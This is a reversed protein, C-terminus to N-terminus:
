AHAAEFKVTLIIETGQGPASNLKLDAGIQTARAKINKLGNRNTIVNPDFGKGNDKVVFTVDPGNNTATLSAETCDSYKVLNNVSEKIILFINRRTEMPLPVDSIAEPFDIQFKIDKSEFLPIAFESIRVELNSFKDNSPKVLWIIDDLAELTDKANAEIKNLLETSHGGQRRLLDSFIYISSLSSGMDDHLDTAIQSRIELERQLGLNREILRHRLYYLLGSILLLTFLIISGFLFIRDNKRTAELFKLRAQEKENKYLAEMQMVHRNSNEARISDAYLRFLESFALANKYDGMDTKVKMLGEYANKAESKSRIEKSINLATLFMHEAEDYLKIEFYVNGLNNYTSATYIKDGMKENIVLAKEFLEIAKKYQGTKELVSGLSNYCIAIGKQNGIKTNFQLSNDFYKRASDLLNMREFAEGINNLNMAIGLINNAKEAIPLSLQFYGIADKYNGLAVHINGISNLAVSASYDDGAKEALKLAEIHYSLALSNEDLRRYVVGINNLAFIESFINKQKRSIELSRKHLELAKSYNSLDRNYVGYIDLLKPEVEIYNLKDILDFGKNFLKEVGYGGRHAWTYKIISDVKQKSDPMALIADISIMEPNETRTQSIAGYKNLLTITIVFMIVMILFTRYLYPNM